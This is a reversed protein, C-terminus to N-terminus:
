CYVDMSTWGCIKILSCKEARLQEYLEHLVKGILHKRKAGGPVVKTFIDEPNDLLPVHGTMSEGTAMYEEIAHYCSSNSKKKLTSDPRQTNHIVSMNDRYILSTGLIPVEM